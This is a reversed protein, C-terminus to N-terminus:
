IQKEINGLFTRIIKDTEKIGRLIERPERHKKERIYDEAL